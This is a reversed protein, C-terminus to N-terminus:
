NNENNNNLLISKIEEECVIVPLEDDIDEVQIYQKNERIRYYLELIKDEECKIEYNFFEKLFKEFLLCRKYVGQDIQNKNEKIFLIFNDLYRKIFNNGTLENSFFDNEFIRFQNYIIEIFDCFFKSYEKICENQILLSECQTILIFISRWQEFSEYIEGFFFTIFSYQLEGLLDNKITAYKNYIIEKCIESKDTCTKYIEEPAKEKVKSYILKHKSNQPIETFYINGKIDYDNMSLEGAYEKSTTIYKRNIPELKELIEPSIFKSLDCWSALSEDPYNGLYQDFELNQCGIQFNKYEEPKLTIFESLLPEWKRIHIKCDENKGLSNVYIFFGQKVMYNEEKLSFTIFHSGNPILKVGMFKEGLSFINNDIGFQMFKPSNLLLLVGSNMRREYLEECM